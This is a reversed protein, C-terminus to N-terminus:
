LREQIEDKDYGEDRDIVMFIRIKGDEIDYVARHDVEGGREERIELRYIQRKGVRIIKSDEHGTPNDKLQDIKSRVEKRVKEPFQQVDEIAGPSYIVEV